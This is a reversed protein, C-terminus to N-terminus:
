FQVKTTKKNKFSFEYSVNRESFKQYEILTYLTPATNNVHTSM